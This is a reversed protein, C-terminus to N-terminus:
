PEFVADLRPLESLVDAVLQRADAPRIEEDVTGLHAVAGRKAGLADIPGLLDDCEEELRSALGLPKAMVDLNRKKIGNNPHIVKSAYLGVLTPIAEDSGPVRGKNQGILDDAFKASLSVFCGAVGADTAASVDVYDQFKREIYEEILACALVLYAHTRFRANDSLPTTPDPDDPLLAQALDQEQSELAEVDSM